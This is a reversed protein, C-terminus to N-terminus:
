PYLSVDVHRTTDLQGAQFNAASPSRLSSLENGERKPWRKRGGSRIPVVQDESRVVTKCAIRHEITLRDGIIDTRPLTHEINEVFPLECGKHRMGIQKGAFFAHHKERRTRDFKAM